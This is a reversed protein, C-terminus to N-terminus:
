KRSRLDAKAMRPAPPLWSRLCSGCTWFVVVKGSTIVQEQKVLSARPVNPM